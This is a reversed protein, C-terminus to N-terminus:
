PLGACLWVAHRLVVTVVYLLALFVLVLWCRAGVRASRALGLRSCASGLGRVMDTLEQGGPMSKLINVFGRTDLSRSSSGAQSAYVKEIYKRLGTNTTKARNRISTRLRAALSQVRTDEDDDSSDEERAWRDHTRTAQTVARRAGVGRSLRSMTHPALPKPLLM